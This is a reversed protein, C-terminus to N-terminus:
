QFYMDFFKDPEVYMQIIQSWTLNREPYDFEDKKPYKM